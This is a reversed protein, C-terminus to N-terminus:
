KPAKPAARGTGNARAPGALWALDSHLVSGLGLAKRYRAMIDSAQRFLPEYANQDADQCRALVMSSKTLREVRVRNVPTDVALMTLPSAAGSSSQDQLSLEYFDKPDRMRLVLTEITSISDSSMSYQATLFPSEASFERRLRVFKSPAADKLTALGRSIEFDQIFAPKGPVAAMAGKIGAQEEASPACVNLYNMKVQPQGAPPAPKPEQQAFAFAALFLTLARKLV